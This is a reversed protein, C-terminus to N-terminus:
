EIIKKKVRLTDNPQNSKLSDSSGTLSSDIDAQKYIIEQPALQKELQNNEPTRCLFPYWVPILGLFNLLIFISAIRHKHIFSTKAIFSLWIRQFINLKAYASVFGERGSKKYGGAYPYKFRTNVKKNTVDAYTQAYDYRFNVREDACGPLSYPKIPKINRDLIVVPYPKEFEDNKIYLNIKLKLM